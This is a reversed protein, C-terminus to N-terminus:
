LYETHVLSRGPAQFTSDVVANPSATNFTWSPSTRSYTYGYARVVTDPNLAIKIQRLRGYLDYTFYRFAGGEDKISALNGDTDYALDTVLNSCGTCVRTVKSLFANNSGGLYQYQTANSRADTVQTIRGYGDYSDATEQLLYRSDKSFSGSVTSPAFDTVGTLSKFVFRQYPLYQGTAYTKFSTLEAQVVSDTGGARSIVWREIVPSHIHADGQMATLAIAEANGSGTAYDAPYKMQTIRQTGDSNTVTDQTLQLHTPNAYVYRRATSFSSAGTEDYFTTTEGDQFAWASIM